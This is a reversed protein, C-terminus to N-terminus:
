RLVGNWTRCDDHSVRLELERGDRDSVHFLKYVDDGIRLPPEDYWDTRLDRGLSTPCAANARRSLVDFPSTPAREWHLLDTSRWWQTESADATYAANDTSGYVCTATPFRKRESWTDGDDRSIWYHNIANDCDSDINLLADDLALLSGSDRPLAIEEWAAAGLAARM